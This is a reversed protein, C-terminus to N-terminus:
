VAVDWGGECTGGGAAWLKEGWFVALPTAASAAAWRDDWARLMAVQDHLSGQLPEATPRADYGGHTAARAARVDATLSRAGNAGTRVADM